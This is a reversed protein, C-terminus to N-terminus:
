LCDVPLRVKAWEREDVFVRSRDESYHLEVTQKAQKVRAAVMTVVYKATVHAKSPPVLSCAEDLSILGLRPAASGPAGSAIASGAGAGAGAGASFVSGDDGEAPRHTSGAPLEAELPPPPPPPEVPQPGAVDGSVPAEERVAGDAEAVGELSAPEARADPEREPTSVPLRPSPATNFSQLAAEMEAGLTLIDMAGNQTGDIGEDWDKTEEPLVLGDPLWQFAVAESGDLPVQRERV